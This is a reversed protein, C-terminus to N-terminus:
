AITPGGNAVQKPTPVPIQLAQTGDWYYDDATITYPVEVWNLPPAVDFEADAIQAVRAGLPAPPKQNRDYVIENPSILAFPM